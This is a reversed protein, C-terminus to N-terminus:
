LAGERYSFTVDATGTITVDTKGEKLQFGAIVFTAPYTSSSLAKSVTGWALTVAASITIEPDVTMRGNYLSITKSGSVSEMIVTKKTRFKYPFVSASITFRRSASDYQSTQIRGAWYYDPDNAFLIKVSKGHYKSAVKEYIEHWNDYPCICDLQLNRMSYFVEGFEESCDLAGNMGPVTEYKTVAAPASLVRKAPYLGYTTDFWVFDNDSETKIGIRDINM